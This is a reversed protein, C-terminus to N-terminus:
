VGTGQFKRPDPREPVILDLAPKINVYLVNEGSTFFEATSSGARKALLLAPLFSIGISAIIIIWDLSTIHM